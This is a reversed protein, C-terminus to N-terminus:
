TESVVSMMVRTTPIKHTARAGSRVQRRRARIFIEPARFTISYRETNPTNPHSRAWPTVSDGHSTQAEGNACTRAYATEFAGALTCLYNHQIRLNPLGPHLETLDSRRSQSCSAGLEFRPVGVMGQRQEAPGLVLPTQAAYACSRSRVLLAHSAEARNLVPTM